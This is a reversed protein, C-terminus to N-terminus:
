AHRELWRTVDGEILQVSPFYRRMWTSDIAHILLVREPDHNTSQLLVYRAGRLLVKVVYEKTRVGEPYNAHYFELSMLGKGTKLPTVCLVKIPSCSASEGVFEDGIFQCAYWSGPQLTYQLRAKMEQDRRALQNGAPTRKM